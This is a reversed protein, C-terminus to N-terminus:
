LYIDQKLDQIIELVSSLEQLLHTPGGAESPKVQEGARLVPSLKARVKSLENKMEGIMMLVEPKKSVEENTPMSDDYM